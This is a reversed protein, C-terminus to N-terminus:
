ARPAVVLGDAVREALAGLPEGDLRAALERLLESAVLVEDDSLRRRRDPIRGDGDWASALQKALNDRSIPRGEHDRAFSSPRATVLPLARRERAQWQVDDRAAVLKLTLAYQHPRIASDFFVRPLLAEEDESLDRVEIADVNLPVGDITVNGRDQPRKVNFTAQVLSHEDSVGRVGRM